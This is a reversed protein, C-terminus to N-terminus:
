EEKKKHRDKSRKKRECDQCIDLKRKRSSYIYKKGCVSCKIENSLAGYLTKVDRPDKLVRYIQGTNNCFNIKLNVGYKKEINYIDYKNVIESLSKTNKEREKKISTCSYCFSKIRDNYNCWEKGIYKYICLLVLIYEKIWKHCIMNNIFDIEKKYITILNGKEITINNSKDYIKKFYEKKEEESSYIFSSFDKITDNWINYIDDYEKGRNRLYRILVIQEYIINKKTTYKGSKIIKQCNAEWDFIYNNM